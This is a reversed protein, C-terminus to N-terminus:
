LAAQRPLNIESQCAARIVHWLEDRGQGTRASFPLVRVEPAAERFADLSKRLANGSLKDAKTGVVLCL